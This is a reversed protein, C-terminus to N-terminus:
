GRSFASNDLARSLNDAAAQMAGWDNLSAKDIRSCSDIIADFLTIIEKDMPAHIEDTSLRDRKKVYAARDRKANALLGRSVKKLGEQDEQKIFGGMKKLSLGYKKFIGGTKQIIEGHKKYNM